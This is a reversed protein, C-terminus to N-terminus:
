ILFGKQGKFSLLLFYNHIYVQHIYGKVIFKKKLLPPPFRDTKTSGFIVKLISVATSRIIVLKYKAHIQLHLNIM